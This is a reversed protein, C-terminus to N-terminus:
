ITPCYIVGATVSSTSNYFIFIYTSTSSGQTEQLVACHPGAKVFMPTYHLKDSTTCTTLRNDVLLLASQSLRVEKVCKTQLLQWGPTTSADQLPHTANVLMVLMRREAVVEYTVDCPLAPNGTLQAGWFVGYYFASAVVTCIFTSM